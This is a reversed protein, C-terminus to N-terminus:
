RLGIAAQCINVLYRLRVTLMVAPGFRLLGLYRYLNITAKSITETKKISRNVTVSNLKTDFGFSGLILLAYVSLTEMRIGARLSASFMRGSSCDM